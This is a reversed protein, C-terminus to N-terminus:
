LAHVLAEQYNYDKVPHRIGFFIKHYKANSASLLYAETLDINKPSHPMNKKQHPTKEDQHASHIHPHLHM